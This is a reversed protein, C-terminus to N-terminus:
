IRCDKLEFGFQNSAIQAIIQTAITCATAFSKPREVMKENIVTGNNLMDELNILCCNFEPSILYDLDHLHIIGAEHAQVIKAPLYKRKALDKSIEGAILDRQTSIISTNKNSNEESVDKNYGRVIDEVVADTTNNQRKFEQVSRYSEYAKATNTEGKRILLDFVKDEIDYVSLIGMKRAYKFIEVSIESAVKKNVIGSGNKMAMMVANFIKERNFRVQSGNRKICRIEIEKTHKM